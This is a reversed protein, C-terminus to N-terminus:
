IRAFAFLIGSIRRLCAFIGADGEAGGAVFVLGSYVLAVLFIVEAEEVNGGVSGEGIVHGVAEDFFFRPRV